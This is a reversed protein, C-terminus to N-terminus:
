RTAPVAGVVTGRCYGGGPCESAVTCSAGDNTGGACAANTNDLVVLAARIKSGSARIWCHGEAPGPVQASCTTKFGLVLPATCTTTFPGLGNGDPGAIAAFDIGVPSSSTSVSTVFCNLTQGAQAVLTPSTFDTANAAGACILVVLASFIVRRSALRYM